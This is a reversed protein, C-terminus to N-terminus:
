KEQENSITKSENNLWQYDHNVKSDYVCFEVETKPVAFNRELTQVLSTVESQFKERTTKYNRLTLMQVSRGNDLKKFVNKSMHANYNSAMFSLIRKQEDTNDLEVAVHSEFYCNEPMIDSSKKPAGPHWPASEIKERVVNFGRIQLEKKIRCCEEYATTNNGRFKSSTMVDRITNQSNELDLIIPKVNIEVCALKFRELFSNSFEQCEITVHIEYPVPFNATEEDIQLEEWKMSKRHIMSEIDEHNFGIDYAVSLATLINDAVCDLIKYKDVFRHKTGPASVYPLIAKALEGFEEGAKLGKQSLDKKDKLSLEQIYDLLKTDM